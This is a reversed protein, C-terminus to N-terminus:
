DQTKGRSSFVALSDDTPAVTANHDLAGVTVVYPDNGPSAWTADQVAGNNGAAAVVVVGSRWLQEVALSVPSALYSSPISTSVSLNAVRVNYKARNTYLWQLGRILDSETLNGNDDSIKVSVLTSD